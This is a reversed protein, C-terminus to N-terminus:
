FQYRLKLFVSDKESFFGLGGYKNHGGYIATTLGIQIKENWPPQYTIGPNVAYSGQPDYAFFIDPLITDGLYGTGVRFTLLTAVRNIKTAHGFDRIGNEHDLIISQFIQFSMRFARWPDDQLFPIFTSRDLGLAYRLTNKEVLNDSHSCSPGARAALAGTLTQGTACNKAPFESVNYPKDPYFAFEGRVAAKIPIGFPDGVPYNFHAAFIHTRDNVLVINVTTPLPQGVGGIRCQPGTAPPLCGIGKTKFVMDTALPNYGWIYGLGANLEGFNHTIRTGIKWNDGADPYERTATPVVVPEPGRPNAFLRAVPMRDEPHASWRGYRLDGDATGDSIDNAPAFNDVRQKKPEFGPNAFFEFITNSLPRVTYLTRLGWQPVRTEDLNFLNVAGAPSFAADQPNIVDLLRQGDTEGWSIFQRGLRLQLRDTPFVNAVAEWPVGKYESYFNWSLARGTGLPQVSAKRSKTESNYRPEAVFRWSIFLKFKESFDANFEPQFTFRQMDLRNSTNFFHSGHSISLGTVNEIFGGFSVKEKLFQEWEPGLPSQASASGCFIASLAVVAFWSATKRGVLNM